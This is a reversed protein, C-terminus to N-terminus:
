SCKHCGLLKPLLEQFKATTLALQQQLSSNANEQGVPESYIAVSVLSPAKHLSVDDCHKHQAWKTTTCTSHHQQAGEMCVGQPVVLGALHSTTATCATCATSAGKFAKSHCMANANGNTDQPNM